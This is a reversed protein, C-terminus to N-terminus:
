QEFKLWKKMTGRRKTGGSPAIRVDTPHPGFPHSPARPARAGDGAHAPRLASPRLHDGESGPSRAATPVARPPTRAPGGEVGGPVARHPLFSPHPARARLAPGVSRPPQRRPLPTDALPAIM